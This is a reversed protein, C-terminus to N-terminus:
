IPLFLDAFPLITISQIIIRQKRRCFLFALFIKCPLFYWLVKNCQTTIIDQEQIIIYAHLTLNIVVHLQLYNVAGISLLRAHFLGVDKIHDCLYLPMCVSFSSSSSLSQSESRPSSTYCFMYDRQGSGSEGEGSLTQSALSNCQVSNDNYHLILCIIICM